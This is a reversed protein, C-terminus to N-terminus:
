TIPIETGEKKCHLTAVLFLRRCNKCDGKKFEKDVTEMRNLFDAIPMLICAPLKMGNLKQLYEVTLKGFTEINKLIEAQITELEEKSVVQSKPQNEKEEKYEM